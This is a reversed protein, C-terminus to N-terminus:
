SDRLVHESNLAHESHGINDQLKGISPISQLPINSQTQMQGKNNNLKLGPTNLLFGDWINSLNFKGINRNLIPSKVRIYISEKILRTQNPGPGGQRIHQLQRPQHQARNPPQAFTHPITGEPTRQVM